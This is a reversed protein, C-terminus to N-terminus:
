SEIRQKVVEYMMIAAAISANLSESTNAASKFLLEYLDM